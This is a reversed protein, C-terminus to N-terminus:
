QAELNNTICFARAIEARVESEDKQIYREITARTNGTIKCVAELTVGRSLLLSVFTRKGAHTSVLKWKPVVREVREAGVYGVVVVPETIGARKAIRKLLYNQMSAKWRPTVQWGYRELIELAKPILPVRVRKRNKTTVIVLEGRSADYNDRTLRHVDSWRLGTYCQLLFLDRAFAEDGDLELSEVRALEDPRLYVREVTDAVPLHVPAGDDTLCPAFGYGKRKLWRLVSKLVVLKQRVTSNQYGQRILWGAFDAVFQSTVQRYELTDAGTTEAVFQRLNAEIARVADMTHPRIENQREAYYRRIGGWVDGTDGQLARKAMERVEIHSLIRSRLAQELLARLREALTDLMKNVVAASPFDADLRQRRRNWYEVPVVVGTVVRAKSFGAPVAVVSSRRLHPHALYFRVEVTAM